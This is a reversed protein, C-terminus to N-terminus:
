RAVRPPIGDGERSGSRVRPAIGAELSEMRAGRANGRRDAGVAGRGRDGRRRLGGNGRQASVDASRLCKRDFTSSGLAGSSSALDTLECSPRSRGTLLRQLPLDFAQAIVLLKTLSPQRDGSRFEHHRAALSRMAGCARGSFSSSAASRALHHSIELRDALSRVVARPM